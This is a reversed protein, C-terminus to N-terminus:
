ESPQSELNVEGSVTLATSHSFDVTSSPQAVTDLSRALSNPVPMRPDMTADVPSRAPMLLVAFKSTPVAKRGLGLPSPPQGVPPAPRAM